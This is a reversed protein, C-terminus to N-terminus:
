DPGRIGSGVQRPNSGDEQMSSVLGGLFRNFDDNKWAEEVITTPVADAPKEVITDHKPGFLDVLTSWVPGIVPEKAQERALHAQTEAEKVSYRTFDERAYVAKMASSNNLIWEDAKGLNCNRWSSDLHIYIKTAKNRIGKQGWERVTIIFKSELLELAKRITQYGLIKGYKCKIWANISDFSFLVEQKFESAARSFVAEAVILVNATADARRCKVLVKAEEFAHYLAEPLALKYAYLDQTVKFLLKQGASKHLSLPFRVRRVDDKDVHLFIRRYTLRIMEDSPTGYKLLKKFEEPHRQMMYAVWTYARAKEPFLRKPLTSEDKVKFQFHPTSLGSLVGRRM